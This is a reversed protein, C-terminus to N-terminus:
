DGYVEVKGKIHDRSVISSTSVECTIVFMKNTITAGQTIFEQYQENNALVSAFNCVVRAISMDSTVFTNLYPQLSVRYNNGGVTYQFSMNSIALSENCTNCIALNNADFYTLTILVIGGTAGASISLDYNDDSQSNITVNSGGGVTVSQKNLTNFYQVGNIVVNNGLINDASVLRPLANKTYNLTVSTANINVGLCKQMKIIYGECSWDRTGYAVRSTCAISINTSDCEDINLHAYENLTSPLPWPQGARDETGAGGSTLVFNSGHVQYMKFNDYFNEQAELTSASIETGSFYCGTGNLFSKVNTLRTGDKANYIGYNSFGVVHTDSILNDTSNVYIGTDCGGSNDNTSDGFIYCSEVNSGMANLYIGNLCVHIRVGKIKLRTSADGVRDKGDYIGGIKKRGDLRLDKITSQVSTIPVELIYDNSAVAGNYKIISNEGDGCFTCYSPITLTSTVIYTGAPFYVTSNEGNSLAETIANTDNHTDDGYAGFQKVNLFGDTILEAYLMNGLTEYHGSPQTSSIKYYAGGNDDKAYYGLTRVIDGSSLNAANKMDAVTNFGYIFDGIDERLEHVDKQAKIVEQELTSIDSADVDILTPVGEQTYIYVHENAEYFVLANCYAGNKPAVSSEASDDGLSMPINVYKLGCKCAAKRCDYKPCPETWDNVNYNQEM